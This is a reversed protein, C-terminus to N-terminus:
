KQYIITKRLIKAVCNEIKAGRSERWNRQMLIAQCPLLLRVDSIMFRLWSWKKGEHIRVPNVPTYGLKTVENVAYDFNASYEMKSLGTIRGSIYCKVSSVYWYGYNGNELEVRRWHGTEQHTKM